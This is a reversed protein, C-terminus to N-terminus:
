RGSVISLQLSCTCIPIFLFHVHFSHISVWEVSGTVTGNDYVDGRAGVDVYIVTANIAQAINDLVAVEIGDFIPRVRGSSIENRILVYPQVHYTAAVIPCGNFNRNKVAYLRDITINMHATSNIYDFAALHQTQLGFCDSRFPFYTVLLWISQTAHPLLVNFDLLGCQWAIQYMQQLMSESDNAKVTIVALSVRRTKYDRRQSESPEVLM